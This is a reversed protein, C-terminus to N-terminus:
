KDELEITQLTSFMEPNPESTSHWLRKNDLSHVKIWGKDLLNQESEDWFVQAFVAHNDELTPFLTGELDIWGFKDDEKQNIKKLIPILLLTATIIFFSGLILHLKLLNGIGFVYLYISTCSMVWLLISDKMTRVHPVHHNFGKWFGLPRVKMVFTKLKEDDVPDTMLTVRISLYISFLSIWAILYEAPIHESIPLSYLIIASLAGAIMGTIETWANARWWFWRLLHPAGMGAVMGGFFKVVADISSIQSAISISIVSIAIVSYRGVRVLDKQTAQPNLFRKYFDNAIYSAGWNIHTDVTSMFAAMLSLFVLGLWGPGLIDRMLIPYAMERDGSLAIASNPDNLPYVVIAVLGIIIWPWSRLAFNAFAFWLSGKEADAPTSATYMRQAFYGSGDVSDKTWWIFGISVLFVALPMLANDGSFSPTFSTYNQHTDPYLTEIQTWMSELGGVHQVAFYSFAVAAFCAIAFQFLDTFMVGCIGGASSYVIVIIAIIFISLTNNLDNFMLFSPWLTELRSFLDAGLLQDWHIFPRTIKAMAAFVWGLVLSNVVISSFFAKIIRLSAAEKGGYRMETLEVDTLVGSERWKRAFFFTMFTIGIAATWWFWNGAIGYKAVVGSIWLPTDAAFTTAVMSTGIWWWPINRGAAFYSDLGDESAKSKMMFGTAFTFILYGIILAWDIFQFM